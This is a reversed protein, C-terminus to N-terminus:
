ALVPEEVEKAAVREFPKVRVGRMASYLCMGLLDATPVNAAAEAVFKSYVEQTVLPKNNLLLINPHDPHFLPYSLKIMKQMRVM